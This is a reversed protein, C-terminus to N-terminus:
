FEFTLIEFYCIRITKICSKTKHQIKFILLIKTLFTPMTNM